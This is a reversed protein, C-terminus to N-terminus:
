SWTILLESPARSELHCENEKTTMDCQKNMTLKRVVSVLKFSECVHQAM